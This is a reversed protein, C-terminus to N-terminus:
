EPRITEAIANHDNFRIITIGHPHVVFISRANKLESHPGDVQWRHAAVHTPMVEVNPTEGEPGIDIVKAYHPPIPGSEFAEIAKM